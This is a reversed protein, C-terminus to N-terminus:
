HRPRPAANRRAKKTGPHSLRYQHQRDVDGEGVDFLQVLEDGLPLLLPEEGVVLDDRPELLDVEGLLLDLVEVGVEDVM